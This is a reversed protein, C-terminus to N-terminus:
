CYQWSVVVNSSSANDPTPYLSNSEAENVVTYLQWYVVSSIQLVTVSHFRQADVWTNSCCLVLDVLSVFTLLRGFQTEFVRHGTNGEIYYTSQLLWDCIMLSVNCQLIFAMDYREKNYNNNCYLGNMWVAFAATAINNLWNAADKYLRTLGGHFEASLCMDVIHNM